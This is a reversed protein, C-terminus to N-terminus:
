VIVNVSYVANRRLCEDPLIMGVSSWHNALLTSRLMLDEAINPPSEIHRPPTYIRGASIFNENGNNQKNNASSLSVLITHFTM